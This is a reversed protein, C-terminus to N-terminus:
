PAGGLVLELAWWSGERSREREVLPPRVAALVSELREEVIGSLVLTGGSRLAAAYSGMLEVHAEAVINAVVVDFRAAFGADHPGFPGALFRARSRNLRGNAEAIPVTDADIDIGVVEAAGLADAALALIGSGAGVDLVRQGVLELRGLAALVLRTSEHHGTGFAMGPDLWVVRQAAHLRAVRHTPAIVLPGVVVADLGAFYAAVYDHEDPAEWSGGPPVEVPADFYGVLDGAEEAVARAGAEWLALALSGEAEGAAGRYRVAHRV